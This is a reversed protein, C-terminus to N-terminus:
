SSPVGDFRQFFKCLIQGARLRQAVQQISIEATTLVKQEQVGFSQGGDDKSDGKTFFILCEGFTSAHKLSSYNQGIFTKCCLLITFLSLLSVNYVSFM